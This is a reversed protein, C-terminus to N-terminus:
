SLRQIRKDLPPHTSFVGKGSGKIEKLTVLFDKLGSKQFGTDYALKSGHADTEFEINPDFGKELLTKTVQDVGSDFQSFNSSAGSAVETVGKLTEGRSIIKLAHRKTIHTIEHGLVGALEDDNKLADYLGKTIFVYGGPASYGNVADTNLVGFYFNLQPRYSYDALSKGILIVRRALDRDKVLGGNRAVIQTAVSGGLALEDKLGIGGANKAIKSGGSVIKGVDLGGIDFQALAPTTAASLAGLSLLGIFQRREM